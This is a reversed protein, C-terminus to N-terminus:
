DGSAIERRQHFPLNDFWAMEADSERKNQSIMLEHNYHRYLPHSKTASNIADRRAQARRQRSTLRPPSM